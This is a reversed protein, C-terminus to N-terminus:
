FLRTREASRELAALGSAETCEVVDIVSLGGTLSNGVLAAPSLQCSKNAGNLGLGVSRSELWRSNDGFLNSM